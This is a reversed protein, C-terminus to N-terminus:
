VKMEKIGKRQNGEILIIIEKNKKGEKKKGEKEEKMYREKREIM